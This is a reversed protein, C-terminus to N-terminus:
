ARGPHRAGSRGGPIVGARSPLAGLWAQPTDRKARIRRPVGFGPTRDAAREVAPPDAPRDCRIAASPREGQGRHPHAVRRGDVGPLLTPDAVLGFNV